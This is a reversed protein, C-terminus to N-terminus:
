KKAQKAMHRAARLGFVSAPVITSGPGPYTHGMVTATTNGTAYLGKIVEGEEYLVRADTDTILGGKTDLNGAVIKYATYSGKELPALCSNPRVTPDDYYRDYASDRTSIRIRVLVLMVM